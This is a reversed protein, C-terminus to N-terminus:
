LKSSDWSADVAAIIKEHLRAGSCAVIGRDLGQLYIGKSFDLPYGGVNTMVGGAEKIILVGAAHDWIIEKYGARVFNM